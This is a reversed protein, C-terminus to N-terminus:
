NFSSIGFNAVNFSLISDKTVDEELYYLGGGSQLAYNFTFTNSDSVVNNTPNKIYIGAGNNSVGYEFVNNILVWNCGDCFISGGSIAANFSFTNLNFNLSKTGSTTM